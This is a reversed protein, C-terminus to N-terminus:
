RTQQAATSGAGTLAGFDVDVCRLNRHNCAFAVSRRRRTRDFEFGVRQGRRPALRSRPPERLSVSEPTRMLTTESCTVTAPPASKRPGSIM